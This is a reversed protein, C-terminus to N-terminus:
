VTLWLHKGVLAVEARAAQEEPSVLHHWHTCDRCWAVAPQSRAKALLMATGQVRTIPQAGPTGTQNPLDSELSPTGSLLALLVMVCLVGM